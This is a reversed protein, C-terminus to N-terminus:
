DKWPIEIGRIRAYRCLPHVHRVAMDLDGRHEAKLFMKCLFDAWERDRRLDRLEDKSIVVYESTKKISM